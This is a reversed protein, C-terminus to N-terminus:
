KITSAIIQGVITLAQTESFGEKCLAVYTEWLTKALTRLDASPETAEPGM